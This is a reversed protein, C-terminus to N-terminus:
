ESTKLRLIIRAFANPRFDDASRLVDFLADLDKGHQSRIDPNTALISQLGMGIQEAVEFTPFPTAEGFALLGSFLQRTTQPSYNLARVMPRVSEQLFQQLKLLSDVAGKDSFSQHIRETLEALKRAKEPDVKSLGAQLLLLPALNLKLSGPEKAYSREKWQNLKLPHHCSYCDFISLEPLMGRRVFSPDQLQTALAISHELQGTLWTKAPIYAGKRKKYDEDVVWHKPELISYTDLEFTLRPHGAGYLKHTVQQKTNGYHCSLCLEARANLSYTDHLGNQLNQEHTAGREAHSTLWNQSAGHCSECSVGDEVSYKVGQLSTDAVYTAHCRLCLPEKTADSIGLHKAMKKADSTMLNTYAKSHKDHSAWTTYENQLVNTSKRAKTAGHCNSSSCSGTGEYRPLAYASAVTYGVLFATSIACFSYLRTVHAILQFTKTKM